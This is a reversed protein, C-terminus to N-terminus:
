RSTAMDADGVLRAKGNSLATVVPSWRRSPEVDAEHCQTPGHAPHDAMRATVVATGADAVGFAIRARPLGTTVDSASRSIGARWPCDDPGGARARNETTRASQHRHLRRDRGAVAGM